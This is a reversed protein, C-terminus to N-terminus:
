RWRPVIGDENNNVAEGFHGVKRRGLGCGLSGVNGLEEELIDVTEMAQWSVDHGVAVFDEGGVEPAVEKGKEVDPGVQGCCEVGLGVTLGLTDVLGKLLVEAHETVVLLVVPLVEQGAGLESVVVSHM